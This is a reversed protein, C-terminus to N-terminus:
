CIGPVSSVLLATHLVLHQFAHDRSNRRENTHAFCAYFVYPRQMFVARGQSPCRNHCKERHQLRQEHRIMSVLRRVGAFYIMTKNPASPVMDVCMFTRDTRYRCGRM